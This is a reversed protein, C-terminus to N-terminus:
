SEDENYDEDRDVSLWGQRDEVPDPLRAELTDTIYGANVLPETSEVVWALYERPGGNLYHPPSVPKFVTPLRESLSIYNLVFGLEQVVYWALEDEIDLEFKVWWYSDTPDSTSVAGIAPIRELFTGLRALGESGGARLGEAPTIVEELINLVRAEATLGFQQAEESLRHAVEDPLDIVLQTVM